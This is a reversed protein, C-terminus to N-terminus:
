GETTGVTRAVTEFLDFMERAIQDRREDYTTAEAPTGDSAKPDVYPLAVRLEAGKVFPCSADADSCTMVAAFDTQPNPPDAYRKSFAQLPPQDAAFTVAYVPNSADPDASSISVGARELSAVARPNFATAETGGSYAELGPVGYYAAAVSAWVQSLQSRRSNHTCIFVLRAPEGASVRDAVYAALRDLAQRREPDLSVPTSTLTQVHEALAAGLEVSGVGAAPAPSQTDAAASACGSGLLLAGLAVFFLDLKM